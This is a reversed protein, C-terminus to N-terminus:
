HSMQTVIAQDILAVVKNSVHFIPLKKPYAGWLRYNDHVFDILFELPRNLVAADLCGTSKLKQLGKVVVAIDGKKPKMDKKITFLLNELLLYVPDFGWFAGTPQFHEWDIIHVGDDNTIVNGLSYDGHLPVKNGGERPWIAIYHDIVQMLITQNDRISRTCSALHGDIYKIELRAFSKLQQTKLCVNDNSPYRRKAYWTYGHFESCLTAVGELTYAVKIIKKSHDGDGVKLYTMAENGHSCNRLLEIM